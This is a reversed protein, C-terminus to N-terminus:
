EREPDPNENGEGTDHHALLKDLNRRCVKELFTRQIHTIGEQNIVEIVTDLFQRPHQSALLALLADHSVGVFDLVFGPERSSM